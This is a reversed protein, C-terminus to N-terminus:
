LSKLADFISVELQTSNPVTITIDSNIASGDGLRFRPEADLTKDVALVKQAFGGPTGAAIDRAKSM